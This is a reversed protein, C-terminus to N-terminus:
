VCIVFRNCNVIFTGWIGGDVESCKAVKIRIDGATRRLRGAREKISGAVDLMSALLEGSTDVRIKNVVTEMWGWLCFGLSTLSPSGFLEIVMVM